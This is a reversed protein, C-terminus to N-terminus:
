DAPSLEYSAQGSFVARLREEVGELHKVARPGHSTRFEAPNERYRLLNQYHKFRRRTLIAAQQGASVMNCGTKEMIQEELSEMYRNLNDFASEGQPTLHAWSRDVAEKFAAREDGDEYESYARMAMTAPVDEAGDRLVVVLLEREAHYTSERVVARTWADIVDASECCEMVIAIHETLAEDLWRVDFGRFVAHNLEHKANRKFGRRIDEYHPGGAVTKVTAAVVRGSGRMHYGARGQFRTDFLDGPYVRVREVNEIAAEADEPHLWGETMGIVLAQKYEDKQRRVEGAIAPETMLEGMAHNHWQLFNLLQPDTAEGSLWEAWSGDRGSAAHKIGELFAPVSMTCYRDWDKGSEPDLESLRRRTDSLGQRISEGRAGINLMLDHVDTDAPIFAAGDAMTEFAQAEAVMNIEQAIIQYGLTGRSVDPKIEQVGLELGPVPSYVVGKM